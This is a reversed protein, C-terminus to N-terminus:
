IIKTLFHAYPILKRPLDFLWAKLFEKNKIIKLGEKLDMLDHKIFENKYFIFNLIM